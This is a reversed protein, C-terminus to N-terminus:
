FHLIHYIHSEVISYDSVNEFSTTILIAQERITELSTEYLTDDCGSEIRM